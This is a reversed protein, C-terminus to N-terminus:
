IIHVVRHVIWSSKNKRNISFAIKTSSTDSLLISDVKLTIM